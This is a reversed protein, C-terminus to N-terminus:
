EANKGYFIRGARLNRRYYCGIRASMDPHCCQKLDSCENYRSCCSFDKPISDIISKLAVCAIGSLESIDSWSSLSYKSFSIASSTQSNLIEVRKITKLKPIQAIVRGLYKASVYNKNDVFELATPDIWDDAIVALLAPKIPDFTEPAPPDFAPSGHLDDDPDDDADYVGLCVCADRFLRQLDAEDIIKQNNSLGSRIADIQVQESSDAAEGVVIYDVSPSFDSVVSGGVSGPLARLLEEDRDFNGIFYFSKKYLPSDGYTDDYWNLALQRKEELDKEIESFIVSTIGLCKMFIERCTLADDFARHSTEVPIEFHEALTQLKHHKLDPLAFRSLALTDLFSIKGSFGQETLLDELFHLDFVVNHGVVYKGILWDAVAPAVDAYSPADAVDCDFINNVMSASLPIPCGPNVLTSYSDTLIGNEFRAFGIEIIRDETHSLGTTEIDISIYDDLFTPPLPARPDIRDLIINGPDASPLNVQFVPSFDFYIDM